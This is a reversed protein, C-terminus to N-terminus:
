KELLEASILEHPLPADAAGGTKVIEVCSGLAIPLLPGNVSLGTPQLACSSAAPTSAKIPSAPASSSSGTRVMDPLLEEALQTWIPPMNFPMYLNAKSNLAM